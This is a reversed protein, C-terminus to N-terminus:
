MRNPAHKSKQKVNGGRKQENQWGHAEKCYTQIKRVTGVVHECQRGNRSTWTCRLGDRQVAIEKCPPEEPRPFQINSIDWAVNELGDIYRQAERQEEKSIGAHNRRLHAAIYDPVVAIRCNVCIVICYQPLHRFWRTFTTSPQQTIAEAM